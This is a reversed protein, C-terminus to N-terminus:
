RLTERQQEIWREVRGATPFRAIVGAILIVAMALAIPNKELLYAVLAFFAAGENIAAGIILQSLFMVPLSSLPSKAADSQKNPTPAPSQSASMGGIALAEAQKKTVIGPVIFSMPLMMAGLAVAAYTIIPLPSNNGTAGIAGPGNGTIKAAAAPTLVLQLIIVIVLFAVLGAALAGVIIQGQLTASRIADQDSPMPVSMLFRREGDM